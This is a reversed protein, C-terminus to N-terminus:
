TTSFFKLNMSKVEVFFKIMNQSLSLAKYCENPFTYFFFFEVSFKSNKLQLSFIYIQLNCPGTKM